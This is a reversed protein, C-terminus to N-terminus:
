YKSKPSYKVLMKYFKEARRVGSPAKIGHSANIQLDNVTLKDYLVMMGVEPCQTPLGDRGPDHVAVTCAAQFLMSSM